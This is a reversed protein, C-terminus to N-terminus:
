ADVDKTQKNEYYLDVLDETVRHLEIEIERKRKLLTLIHEAREEKTM